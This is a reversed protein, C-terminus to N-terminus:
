GGATDAPTAESPPRPGASRALAKGLAEAVMTPSCPKPLVDLRQRVAKVLRVGYGTLLVV